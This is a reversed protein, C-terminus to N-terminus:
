FLEYHLSQDIAVPQKVTNVAIDIKRGYFRRNNVGGSKLSEVMYFLQPQSLDNKRVRYVCPEAMGKTYHMYHVLKYFLQSPQIFRVKLNAIVFM